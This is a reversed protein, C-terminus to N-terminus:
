QCAGSGFIVTFFWEVQREISAVHPHGLLDGLHQLALLHTHGKERGLFGGLNSIAAQTCM